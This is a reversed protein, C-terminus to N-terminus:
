VAPTTGTDEEFVLITGKVTYTGSITAELKIIQTAAVKGKWVFEYENQGGLGIGSTSASWIIGTEKIVGNVVLDVTVSAAPFQVGIASIKAVGLYMDKGGTATLTALTGTTTRSGTNTRTKNGFEKISLYEIDSLKGKRQILTKWVTWAV